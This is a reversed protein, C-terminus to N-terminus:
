LIVVESTNGHCFYLNSNLVQHKNERNLECSCSFARPVGVESLHQENNHLTDWCGYQHLPTSIRRLLLPFCTHQVLKFWWKSVCNQGDAMKFNEVYDKKYWFHKRNTRADSFQARLASFTTFTIIVRCTRNSSLRQSGM